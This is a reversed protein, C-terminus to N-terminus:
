LMRVTFIFIKWDSYKDYVDKARVRITFTGMNVWTHSFTQESGSDYPGFWVGVGTGDGWQIEYYVDDREPDIAAVTFNYEIGPKGSIPGSITPKGPPQDGIRVKLSESWEGALSWAHTKAQEQGSDFPGWWGTNTGDGWDVWYSVKDGDYDTAKFKYQISVGPEGMIPGTITPAFPAINGIAIL